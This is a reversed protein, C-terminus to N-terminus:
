AASSRLRHAANEEKDEKQLEVIEHRVVEVQASINRAIEACQAKHSDDSLEVGLRRLSEIDEWLLGDSFGIRSDTTKPVRGHLSM